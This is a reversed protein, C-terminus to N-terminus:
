MAPISDLLRGYLSGFDMLCNYLLRSDLLFDSPYSELNEGSLLSKKLKSTVPVYRISYHLQYQALCDEVFLNLIQSTNTTYDGISFIIVLVILIEAVSFLLKRLRIAVSIYRIGNDLQPWAWCGGVFLILILETTISSDTKSKQSQWSQLKM